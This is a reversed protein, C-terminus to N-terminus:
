GLTHQPSDCVRGMREEVFGCSSAQRLAWYGASRGRRRTKKTFSESRNESVCFLRRAIISRLEVGLGSGFEKRSPNEVLMDVVSFDKV